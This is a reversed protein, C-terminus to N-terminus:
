LEERLRALEEAAREMLDGHTVMRDLFAGRLLEEIPTEVPKGIM